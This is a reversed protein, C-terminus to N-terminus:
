NGVNAAKPTLAAVQTELTKTQSVIDNVMEVQEDTTLATACQSLFVQLADSLPM